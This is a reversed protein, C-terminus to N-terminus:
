IKLDEFNRWNWALNNLRVIDFWRTLSLCERVKSRMAWDNALLWLSAKLENGRAYERLPKIVENFWCSHEYKWESYNQFRGLLTPFSASHIRAILFKCRNLSARSYNFDAETALQLAIIFNHSAALCYFAQNSKGGADCFDLLRQLPLHWMHFAWM